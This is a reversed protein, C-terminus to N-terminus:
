IPGYPRCVPGVHFYLRCCNSYFRFTECLKDLTHHTVYYINTANLEVIISLPM